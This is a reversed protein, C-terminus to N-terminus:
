HCLILTEMEFILFLLIYLFYQFGFPFIGVVTEGYEGDPAWSLIIQIGTAKPMRAEGM